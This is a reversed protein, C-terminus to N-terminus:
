GLTWELGLHRLRSRTPIGEESWGRLEYYEKLMRGLHPLVGKARGEPRPHTLFRPPLLDDKRSVGLRVNYMRKLNFIREGALLLEEQDMEWGTVLEVWRAIASPGVRGVFLFKCLGLPNYVSMYNQLDFTIKAKGEEGHPDPPETYGMEALPIGRGLFYSLSELHCAGRNATAYNVSMCTFARPDHYAVELGKVAMSFEQAVPGIARAAERTGQALLKGFGDGMGMQDVLGLIARPDGWALELGGTDEKTILGKEFCEMAFAVAASASITDLGYRNCRENAVAIAEFNRNLLNGGFGGVTEYEPQHSDVLGYAGDEIRILKGCRIPCSFCAYHGTLYRPLNSQACTARAGEQWSGGRWNQIPLDGHAEVAEVGGPTGFNTLGTASKQIRPIQEKLLDKLGDPDHVRPKGTGRVVVAKLNKSGMLAGFGCRGAARAHRGEFIVSAIKCLREGAQGIAAVRAKQDTEARLLEDSQFTDAGWIHRADRIEVKGNTVWLYVPADARGRILLGDVGTAKLAAGWYGGASSEGWIGTLPSRACLVTRCATPVPSGTLLGAMFLLPSSAELPERSTDLEGLLLKAGVGSGGLYQRLEGEPIEVPRVERCSLDVEWLLCLRGKDM